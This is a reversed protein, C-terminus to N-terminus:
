ATTVSRGLPVHARVRWGGGPRAGSELEGGYIEARERMGRLGAGGAPAGSSGGQGDDTVELELGDPLHRVHVRAAAAGGGHKLTNTLAEQVIRYVALELGAPLPAAPAGEVVCAVPLGARRVDAVLTELQAVGPQPALEPADGERHLVGLLRRMEGLAQRGTRSATRMAHEAEDPDERLAYSAGDSLAIMVSVNHAVIDHMERAIRAREAAAALEGQQDREHELRRAREQLSAVLARRSRVSQGMIAAATALGSLGVFARVEEGPTWRVAALVVGVEVTGWALVAIRTPAALAVTYLAVLLGADGFARVDLLWQLAAVGALVVFVPIPWRRRLLLPLALAVTFARAGGDPPVNGPGHVVGLAVIAAVLLADAVRPPPWRLVTSRAPVLSDM